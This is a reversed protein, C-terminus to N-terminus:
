HGSAEGRGPLGSFRAPSPRGRGPEQGPRRQCVGAEELHEKHVVPVSRAHRQADEPLHGAPEKLQGKLHPPCVGTAQAHSAPPTKSTLARREAHPQALVWLLFASLINYERTQNRSRGWSINSYINKSITSRSCTLLVHLTEFKTFNIISKWRHKTFTMRLKKTMSQRFRTIKGTVDETVRVHKWYSGPRDRTCVGGLGAKPPTQASPGARGDTRCARSNLIQLIRGDALHRTHPSRQLAAAPRRKEARTLPRVRRTLTKEM